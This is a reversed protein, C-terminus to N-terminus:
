AAALDAPAAALDALITRAAARGERWCQGATRVGHWGNGAAYIGPAVRGAADARPGRTAPDVPLASARALSAEPLFRGTFVVGDCAVAWLRGETELRVGTVRGEGELDVIRTRLHVPVGLARAAHVLGFPLRPEGEEVLAAPRAGVHRCTLIASLTVLDSGVLLPRRFPRLGRLYVLDQLAGTNLIGGPRLGPALLAARSEERTGTALLVARAELWGVGDESAVEVATGDIRVAAHGARLSAGAGQADRALREAYAPGSLVRRFERMGYPSHGCHIPVGGVRPQRELVTVRLGARGLAAAAGLGAPGSGVVVVDARGGTM